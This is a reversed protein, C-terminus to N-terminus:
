QQSFGGLLVIGVEYVLSLVPFLGSCLGASNRGHQGDGARSTLSQLPSDGVANWPIPVKGTHVAGQERPERSVLAKDRSWLRLTVM